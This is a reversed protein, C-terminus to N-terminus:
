ITTMLPSLANQTLAKLMRHSSHALNTPSQGPRPMRLRTEDTIRYVRSLRPEVEHGIEGGAEEELWGVQSSAAQVPGAQARIAVPLPRFM